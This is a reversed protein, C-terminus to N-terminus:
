FIRQWLTYKNIIGTIFEININDTINKAIMQNFTLILTVFYLYFNLYIHEFKTKGFRSM